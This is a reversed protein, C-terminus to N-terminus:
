ETKEESSPVPLHAGLYISAIEMVAMARGIQYVLYLVALSFGVSVLAKRHEILANM